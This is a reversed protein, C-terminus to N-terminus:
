KLKKSKKSKQPQLKKQSGVSDENNKGSTDKMAKRMVEIAKEEDQYISTALNNNFYKGSFGKPFVPKSLLSQLQREKAKLERKM